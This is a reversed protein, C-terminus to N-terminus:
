LREASRLTASIRGIQDRWRSTSNSDGSRSHAPFFTPNHRIWPIAESEHPPASQLIEALRSVRPRDSPCFGPDMRRGREAAEEAGPPCFGPDMLRAREAAEKAGPPSFGPDMSLGIDRVTSSQQDLTRIPFCNTAGANKERETIFSKLAQHVLTDHLAKNSNSDDVAQALHAGCDLSNSGM